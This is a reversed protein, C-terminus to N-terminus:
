SARREHVVEYLHEAAEEGRVGEKIL